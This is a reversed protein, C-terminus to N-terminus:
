AVDSIYGEEYLGQANMGLIVSKQTCGFRNKTVGFIRKGCTQSKKDDDFYLEAHTDVMHHINNKGAFDGNKTVQGIFMVIAYSSKAWKVLEQACRVPTMGTVGGNPYFGDNLTQLSDHIIVPQKGPYLEMLVEAHEILDKVYIEQGVHFDSPLGMREYVMKVQYLSQEGSNLLVLNGMTHLASAVQMMLTTKGCGGGGTLMTVSSPTLGDGGLAVDFWELGTKKRERLKDPVRVQKITTGQEIEPIAVDLIFQSAM